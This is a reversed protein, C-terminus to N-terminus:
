DTNNYPVPNKDPISHLRNLGKEFDSKNIPSVINKYQKMFELYASYTPFDCIM